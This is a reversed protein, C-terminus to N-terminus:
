KRGARRAAIFASTAERVAAVIPEVNAEDITTWGLRRLATARGVRFFMVQGFLASVAIIVGESEPDEGTARGWLRCLRRHRPEILSGYLIEFTPSPDMQERVMFRAIAEAEPRGLMFRGLGTVAAVVLDEAAEPPMAEIAGDPLNLSGIREVIIAAIAEGCARHLGAKGGFHYAIGAINVGAAAAIDRTSTADYGKRGFLDIAVRVLASRTSEGGGEGAAPPAFLADLDRPPPTIDDTMGRLM